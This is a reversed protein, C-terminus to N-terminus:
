AAVDNVVRRGPRRTQRGVPHLNARDSSPDSQRDTYVRVVADDAEITGIEMIAVQDTSGFAAAPLVASM